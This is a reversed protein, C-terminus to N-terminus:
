SSFNNWIEEPNETDVAITKWLYIDQMDDARGVNTNM